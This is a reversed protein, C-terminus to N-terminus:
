KKWKWDRVSITSELQEQLPQPVLSFFNLGTAEEVADVTVAFDQLPKDSGENPLIFGIMKSPPTLDYIVKYYYQPVTVKGPGITITKTEPLIPGTVVYIEGEAIAFQRVQEELEKWVGRNFAPKQPSMNSMFFSESMTKESFAMDAAPALHGRDYGSRRYDALTASGTPVLPDERFDDGRKAAKTVAETKTMKYIVWAPQEHLEIYGLSYGERDVISDAQGPVGLALNDFNSKVTIIPQQTQTKPTVPIIPESVAPAEVAPPNIQRLVDTAVTRVRQELEARHAYAYFGGGAVLALLFLILKAKINTKKKKAKRRPM